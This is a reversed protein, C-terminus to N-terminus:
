RLSGDPFSEAEMLGVDKDVCGGKGIYVAGLRLGISGALCVGDAGADQGLLGARSAAPEQRDRGIVDKVSVLFAGVVLIVDGRRQRNVAVGLQGTLFLDAVQVRLMKDDTGGPEIVAGPFAERLCRQLKGAAVALDPDDTVLAAGRGEDGMKGLRNAPQDEGIVEAGMMNGAAPSGASKFKDALEIAAQSDLGRHGLRM